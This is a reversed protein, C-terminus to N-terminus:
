TFHLTVDLRRSFMKTEFDHGSSEGDVTMLKISYGGSEARKLHIEDVIKQAIEETCVSSSCYCDLQYSASQLSPANDITSPRPHSTKQILLYKESPQPVFGLYIDGGLLNKLAANSSLVLYFASDIM